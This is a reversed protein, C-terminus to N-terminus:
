RHMTCTNGVRPVEPSSRGKGRFQSRAKPSLDAARPSKKVSSMCILDFMMTRPCSWGLPCQRLMTMRVVLSCLKEKQLERVGSFSPVDPDETIRRDMMVESLARICAKLKM